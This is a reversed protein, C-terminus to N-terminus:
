CSKALQGEQGDQVVGEFFCRRPSSQFLIWHNEELQNREDYGGLLHEDM